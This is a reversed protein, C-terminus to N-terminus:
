LHKTLGLNGDRGRNGSGGTLNRVTGYRVLVPKVYNRRRKAM